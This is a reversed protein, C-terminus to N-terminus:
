QPLADNIAKQFVIKFFTDRRFTGFCISSKQGTPNKTQESEQSLYFLGFRGPFVYFVNM